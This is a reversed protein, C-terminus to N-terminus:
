GSALGNECSRARRRRPSAQSCPSFTRKGPAPRSRRKQAGGVRGRRVGREGGLSGVGLVQGVDELWGVRGGSGGGRLGAGFAEVTEADLTAKGGSRTAVSVSGM